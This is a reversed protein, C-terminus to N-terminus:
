ENSFYLDAEAKRRIILGNLVQGGAKDWRMFENRITPDNANKNVKSLLTSRRFNFFGVNYSFSVLASFQNSNLETKLAKTVGDAFGNVMNLFLEDAREKTIQDGQKVRDGNEYFTNGWGITWVNASCQYATLKCGEFRHLLEIGQKTLRM